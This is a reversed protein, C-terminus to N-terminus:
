GAQVNLQNNVSTVGQVNRAIEEARTRAAATPAPGRLTVVGDHADVKIRLASLNRDAALGTTVKAAILADDFHLDAAVRAAAQGAADLAKETVVAAKASADKLEVAASAGATKTAEVAKRTAQRAEVRNNDTRDCAGLSLLLALCSLAAFLKTPIPKM